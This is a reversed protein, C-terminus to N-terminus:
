TSELMKSTPKKYIIKKKNLPSKCKRPVGYELNRLDIPGKLVGM